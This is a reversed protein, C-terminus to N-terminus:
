LHDLTRTGHWVRPDGWLWVGFACEREDRPSTDFLSDDITGDPRWKALQALEADVDETRPRGRGRPELQRRRLDADQKAKASAQEISQAEMEQLHMASM